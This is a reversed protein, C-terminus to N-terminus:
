NATGIDSSEGGGYNSNIYMARHSGFIVWPTLNRDVAKLDAEIFAYQASGEHFDHESSMGVFHFLGVNYSWWPQNTTAPAPMPILSTTLVARSTLLHSCCSSSSSNAHADGGCEGGSDSNSFYSASNYYDSEHNGVTTLYLASGAMPSLMDLYFDWVSLYGTAYSIDGGHYIM